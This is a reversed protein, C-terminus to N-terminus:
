RAVPKEKRWRADVAQQSVGHRQELVVGKLELVRGRLFRGHSSWIIDYIATDTRHDGGDWYDATIAVPLRGHQDDNGDKLLALLPGDFWDADITPPLTSTQPAIGLATPFQVTVSQVHHSADGLALRSGGDEPTATLTVLESTHAANAAQAAEAQRAQQDAERGQWNNWLTLGAIVVGAIAVIEALTLWRRRTAAAEAKAEAREAASEPPAPDEDYRSM